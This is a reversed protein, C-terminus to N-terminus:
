LHNNFCFFINTTLLPYKGCKCEGEGSCIEENHPALCTDTTTPCNCDDGTWGDDCVCKGCDCTAGNNGGCVKGNIIPCQLCECHNGIYGQNCFCEGCVCDGRDSCIPGSNSYETDNSPLRCSNTLEIISDYDKLNCNCTRGSWEDNCTCKGCTFNGQNNCIDSDMISHHASCDCIEQLTLDMDLGVASLSLEEIKITQHQFSRFRM